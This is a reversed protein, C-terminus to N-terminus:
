VVEPPEPGVSVCDTVLGFGVVLGCAGAFM